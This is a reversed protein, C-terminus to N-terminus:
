FSATAKQFDDMSVKWWPKPSTSFPKTKHNAISNDYDDNEDNNDNNDKYNADKTKDKKGNMM